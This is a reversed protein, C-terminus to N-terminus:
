VDRVGLCTLITAPSTFCGLRFGASLTCLVVNGNGEWLKQIDLSPFLLFRVEYLSKALNNQGERTAMSRRPSYTLRGNTQRKYECYGPFSLLATM